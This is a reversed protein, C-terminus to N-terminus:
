SVTMTNFRCSARKGLSQPLVLANKVWVSEGKLEFNFKFSKESDVYVESFSHIGGRHKTYINVMSAYVPVCLEGIKATFYPSVFIGNIDDYGKSQEYEPLSTDDRATLEQETLGAQELTMVAEVPYELATVAADEPHRIIFAPFFFNSIFVSLTTILPIFRSLFDVM